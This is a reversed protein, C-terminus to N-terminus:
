PFLTVNSVAAPRVFLLLLENPGVKAQMKYQHDKRINRPECKDQVVIPRKSKSLIFESNPWRESPLHPHPDIFPHCLIIEVKQVAECIFANRENQYFM